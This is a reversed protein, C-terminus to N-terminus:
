HRWVLASLEAAASTLLAFALFGRSPTIWRVDWAGRAESTRMGAAATLLPESAREFEERAGFLGTNAAVIRQWPNTSYLASLFRQNETGLIAIRGGPQNPRGYNFEIREITSWEAHLTRLPTRMELFEMAVDVFTKLGFQWVYWGFLLWTLLILGAIYRYELALVVPLVTLPWYLAFTLRGASDPGLHLIPAEEASGSRPPAV